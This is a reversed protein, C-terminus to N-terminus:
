ASSADDGPPPPPPTTDVAPADAAPTTPAAPPTAAPADTSTATATPTATAPKKPRGLLVIMWIILGIGVLGIVIGISLMWWGVTKLIPAHFRMSADVALGPKGDNRMVVVRVDKGELDALTVTIDGTASDAQRVWFQKAAPPAVRTRRGPEVVLKVDTGDGSAVDTASPAQATGSAGQELTAVHAITVNRLYRNIDKAPAIGVFIPAGGAKPTVHFTVSADSVQSPIDSAKVSFEPSVIAVVKKPADMGNLPINLGSGDGIWGVIATGTALFPLAVLVILGGVIIGVIKM